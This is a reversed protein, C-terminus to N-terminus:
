QVEKQILESGLNVYGQFPPANVVEIKNAERLHHIIEFDFQDHIDISAKSIGGGILYIGNNLKCPFTFETTITEGKKAEVLISLNQNSLGYVISGTITELRFGISVLPIDEFCEVLISVKYTEGFRLISTPNSDKDLFAIDKIKAQIHEPNGIEFQDQERGVTMLIKGRKMKETIIKEYEYRLQRTTGQFILEGNHLLMGMTCLSDIVELSHTVLLITTGSQAIERIKKFCKQQFFSDGVALAEDIFFIDPLISIATSFTLRARMGSSYTKFPLDIYEELESFDIIGQVKDDTEKQSLGLCMSGLYINERGTYEEHFGTGLELIAATKGNIEVDGTTKDLTGALLKLLTSKGSGNIGILGVVEGKPIEFSTNSLAWKELHYSKRFVVEKLLDAPKRYVKYMKSLNSVKIALSSENM